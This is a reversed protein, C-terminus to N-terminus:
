ILTSTNKVKSYSSYVNLTELVLINLFRYKLEGDINFTVFM